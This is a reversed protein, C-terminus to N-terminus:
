RVRVMLHDLDERKYVRRKSGAPLYAPLLGKAIVGQVYKRPRGLYRAAQSVNFWGQQKEDM